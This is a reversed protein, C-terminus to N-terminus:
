FLNITKLYLDSIIVIVYFVVPYIQDPKIVINLVKILKSIIILILEKEFPFNVLWEAIYNEWAMSNM